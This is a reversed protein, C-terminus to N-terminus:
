KVSPRKSENIRVHKPWNKLTSLYQLRERSRKITREAYEVERNLQTEEEEIQAATPALREEDRARQQQEQEKAWLERQRKRREKLTEYYAPDCLLEATQQIGREAGVAFADAADRIVSETYTLLGERLDPPVHRWHREVLTRACEFHNRKSVVSPIPEPQMLVETDREETM